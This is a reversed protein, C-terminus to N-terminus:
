NRCILRIDPVNVLSEMIEAINRLSAKVVKIYHQIIDKVDQDNLM